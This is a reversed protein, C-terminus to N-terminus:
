SAPCAAGDGPVTLSVVYARVIADVCSSRLNATHGDGDWSVLVGRDLQRALSRAWAFPTAPDRLAGVVVIPPAGTARVPGPAMEAAVPWGVCAANGWGLLEGFTPGDNAGALAAAAADTVSASAAPRDACNIAVNAEIENTYDGGAGRGNLADALAFMAAPEGDFAEGLATELRPWSSPNYMAAAIADLALSRTLARGTSDRLATATLRVLWGDLVAEGDSASRGLVCGERAACWSIFSQLATEFGRAQAHGEAVDDLTPDVAGDLVMARVHTPFLQAYIAGLFTGYSEGIYSLTSEGLAARLVDLDRATDVTGVHSLLEGSKKECGAAFAADIEGVHAVDSAVSPDADYGIFEDELAGNVCRIPDSAGVGRPDFSVIDFRHGLEADYAQWAARLYAVGSGGPGGPNIVVSGVRDPATTHRRVLQLSITTSSPALYDLPVRLEACQLGGGCPQWDIGQRYFAGLTAPDISPLEMPTPPRAAASTSPNAHNSAVQTHSSAPGPSTVASREPPRNSPSGSVIIPGASGTCASLAEAAAVLAVAFALAGVTARRRRGLRNTVIELTAPSDRRWMM